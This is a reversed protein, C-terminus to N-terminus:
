SLMYWAAAMLCSANWDDTTSIHGLMGQLLRNHQVQQTQLKQRILRRLQTVDKQRIAELIDQKGHQWARSRYEAYELLAHYAGGNPSYKLLWQNHIGLAGCLANMIEYREVRQTCNALQRFIRPTENQGGLQILALCASSLLHQHRQEGTRLTAVIAPIARPDGIKGLARFAMARIRNPTETTLLALLPEVAPQYRLEGLAWAAHDALVALEANRIIGLLHEGALDSKTLALSRIAEVKVDYSPDNLMDILPRLSMPNSRQGLGRALTTRIAEREHYILRHSLMSQFSGPTLSSFFDSLRFLPSVDSLRLALAIALLNILGVGLILYGKLVDLHLLKNMLLLGGTPLVMDELFVGSFFIITSKAVLDCASFINMVLMANQRNVYFHQITISAIGLGAQFGGILLGYLLLSGLSLLMAPTFQRSLPADQTPHVFLLLPSLLSGLILLGILMQKFGITDAIRGWFLLSIASGSMMVFTYLTTLNSPLSLMQRLYVVFLPFLSFKLLIVIFLPRKLLASTRFIHWLEKLSSHTPNNPNPGASPAFEPIKRVWYFRHILGLLPILLIYKYQRETIAAGVLFPLLGNVATTLLTFCFRMRSFFRGRDTNTTIDNLLPQWVSGSGIQLAGAFLVLLTLYLPFPLSRAPILILALLVGFRIADAALLVRIRGFNQITRLFPIRLLAILPVIALIKSINKPHLGLVDNAYLMMFAGHVIYQNLSTFLNALLAAKQGKKRLAESLSQVHM